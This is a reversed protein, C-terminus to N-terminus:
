RYPSLVAAVVGVPAITVSDNWVSRTVRTGMSSSGRSVRWGGGPFRARPRVTRGGDAVSGIPDVDAAASYGQGANRAAGVTPMATDVVVDGLLICVRCSTERAKAWPRRSTTSVITWLMPLAIVLTAM